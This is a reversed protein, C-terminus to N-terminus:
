SANSFYITNDMESTIFWSDNNINSKGKWLNLVKKTHESSLNNRIDNIFKSKFIYKLIM